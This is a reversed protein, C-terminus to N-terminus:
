GHGSSVDRVDIGNPKVMEMMSSTQQVLYEKVGGNIHNITFVGKLLMMKLLDKVAQNRSFENWTPVRSVDKLLERCSAEGETQTSMDAYVRKM